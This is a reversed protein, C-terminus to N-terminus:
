ELPLTFPYITGAQLEVLLDDVLRMRGPALLDDNVDKVALALEIVGRGKGASVEPWVEELSAQVDFDVSAAWQPRLEEAPLQEGLLLVPRDFQTKGALYATVEPRITEPALYLVNAMQTDFLPALTSQWAAGDSASPLSATQPYYANYPWGSACVGCYYKGGNVFADALTAGLPGDSPLLAAARYDPSILAAIFGALFAQSEPRRRLVTLNAASPLDSSSVALFQTQPAAALLEELNAPIALLVIVRIETGVEEKRIESRNELVMGASASLGALVDQIPQASAGAPAYLLVKGPLATPTPEVTPSASVEVAPASPTVAPQTGAPQPGCGALLLSVLALLFIIPNRKKM